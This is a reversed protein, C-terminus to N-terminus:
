ESARTQGLRKGGATKRPLWELGVCKAVGWGGFARQRGPGSKIRLFLYLHEHCLRSHALPGRGMATTSLAQFGYKNSTHASNQVLVRAGGAGTGSHGASKTLAPRKNIRIRLRCHVEHHGTAMQERCTHLPVMVHLHFQWKAGWVCGCM